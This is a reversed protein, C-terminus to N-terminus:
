LVLRSKLRVPVFASFKLVVVLGGPLGSQSPLAAHLSLPNILMRHFLQQQTCLVTFTSFAKDFDCCGFLLSGSVHHGAM